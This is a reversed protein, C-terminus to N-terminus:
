RSIRAMRKRVSDQLNDKWLHFAHRWLGRKIAPLIHNAEPLFARRQALAWRLAKPDVQGRRQIGNRVMGLLSDPKPKGSYVSIYYHYVWAGAEFELGVDVPPNFQPPMLKLSAPSEWLARNLAPQDLYFGTRERQENWLEHWRRFLAHCQTNDRCYMVGANIYPLFPHDWGLPAYISKGIDEPFQDTRYLHDRNQSAAICSCDLSTLLEPSVIVADLDLFLFDGAVRSRLTTKLVRSNVLPGRHPTDVAVVEDVWDSLRIGSAVAFEHTRRDTVCVMTCAPVATRTLLATAALLYLYERQNTSLVYAIKLTAM